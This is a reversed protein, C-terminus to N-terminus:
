HPPIRSEYRTITSLRSVHWTLRALPIASGIDDAWAGIIGNWADNDFDNLLFSENMLPLNKFIENRLTLLRLHGKCTFMVPCSTGSQVLSQPNPLVMIGSYM